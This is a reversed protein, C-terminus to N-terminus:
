SSTPTTVSAMPWANSSRSETTSAEILNTGLPWQCHALIGPVLLNLNKALRKLPEIRSQMARWHWQLWFRSAYGAHRYSWLAKLEDKLLYVTLLARHAALLERLRVQDEDKTINDRNRLLLWRSGKILRRAPRENRLRNAEDVRVRDIVERGYRALVHFLDYVIEAQPCQFRIEETYSNSMDICAARIRQCGAPGLLEFLPRVDLRGRGLRGM